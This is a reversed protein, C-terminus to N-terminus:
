FNVVPGPACMARRMRVTIIKLFLQASLPPARVPIKPRWLSM